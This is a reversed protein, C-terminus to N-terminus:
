IRRQLSSYKELVLRTWSFLNSFLDFFRICSTLFEVKKYLVIIAFTLVSSDLTLVSPSTEDVNEDSSLIRFSSSILPWVADAFIITCFHPNAAISWISFNWIVAVLHISHCRCLSAFYDTSWNISSFCKGHEEAFSEFLAWKLM